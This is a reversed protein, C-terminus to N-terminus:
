RSTRCKIIIGKEPNVCTWDFKEVPLSISTNGILKSFSRQWVKEEGSCAELVPHNVTHALQISVGPRFWSSRHAKAQQIDIMQPVVFRVPSEPKLSVVQKSRDHRAHTREIISRAALRGELACIDHMNAGRLINGAAFINRIPTEYNLDVMPGSTFSDQLLPHNLILDSDPRFRGAIVITDCDLTFIEGTTKNELEIGEVQRNGLIASVATNRFIPFGMWSSMFMAPLRYTQIADFEEVMGVISMNAHKLTLASSFAVVETGIIVAKKGPRLRQLNVMKQLTGTTFIGAPRTGPILRNGRSSEYCGTALLLFRSEFVKMGEPSAVHIQHKEGEDGPVIDTVTSQTQIKAPTKRVLNNLRRAYQSGTYLRKRDRMGFPIHASRPIGGLEDEYEFIVTKLEPSKSLELCATIGAPGGGIIATDFYPNSKSNM